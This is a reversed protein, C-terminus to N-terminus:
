FTHSLLLRAGIGPAPFGLADEYHEDFVNAVVLRATTAAIFTWMAEVSVLNYASLEQVGVPIAYDDRGDVYRYRIVMGLSEVPQWNLNANARWEPRNLLQTGTADDQTQAFQAQLSGSLHPTFVHTVAAAISESIVLDRNELRPPPGPVFDILEEYRTRSLTISVSNGSAGDWSMGFEGGVSEEPKLSANGVFPNGLAYFSPAKFGSGAAARLSFRTDPIFYRVGARATLSSELGDVDDLRLGTNFAWRESTRNAEIFGSLTSRDLDFNNAVKFGGFNLAGESSGSESLAEIGAGLTWKQVDMRGTAQGAVRQYRSVDTGAPIGVPNFASGAVGPSVTDDRRDVIYASIDVRASEYRYAPLSLGALQERGKRSELGPRTALRPGGSSDPYTEAETENFRVILRGADQQNLPAFKGTVTRSKFSADPTQEGDDDAIFGISGGM